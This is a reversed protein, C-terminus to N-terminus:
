ATINPAGFASGLANSIGSGLGSMGGSGLMAMLMANNMGGTLANASGVTGSALATGANAAFQGQTAAAQTGVGALANTASLGTNVGGALQSLYNNYQGYNMAANNKYLADLTNGSIGAGAAGAQQLTQAGTNAVMQNFFPSNQYGAMAKSQADTGNLGLFNGYLNMANQGYNMYPTEYGVNQEYQQHQLDAAYKMADAQQQAAKEAANSGLIGGLLSGGGLVLGGILAPM